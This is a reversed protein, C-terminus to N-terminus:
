QGTKSQVHYIQDLIPENCVDYMYVINEMFYPFDYKHCLIYAFGNVLTRPCTPQWTVGFINADSSRFPIPLVLLTDLKTLTWNQLTLWVLLLGYEIARWLHVFIRDHSCYTYVVPGSHHNVHTNIFNHMIIPLRAM